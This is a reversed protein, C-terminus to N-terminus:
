RADVGYADVAGVQLAKQRAAELDIDGGLDATLTVVELQYHEMLWRVAVSTDLGGSDALVVKTM